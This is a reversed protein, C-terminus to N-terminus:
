NLFASVLALTEKPMEEQPVHGCDKLVEFRGNALDHALKKGLSPPVVQDEAGWIVLAPQQITRYRAVLRQLNPPVIQEAM